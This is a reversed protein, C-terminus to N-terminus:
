QGNKRLLEAVEHARQGVQRAWASDLAEAAAGEYDRARLAALMKRFTLLGGVGLNFAMDIIARRRKCDLERWWPLAHDLQDCVDGVDNRLLREAEVDTLGNGRTLLRGYGITPNGQIMDGTKLPRGTADDYVVHRGTESDRVDGEHRRLLALLHPDAGVM